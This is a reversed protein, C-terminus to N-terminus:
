VSWGLSEVIWNVMQLRGTWLCWVTSDGKRLQDDYSSDIIITTVIVLRVLGIGGRM